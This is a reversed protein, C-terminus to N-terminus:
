SLGGHGGSSSMLDMASFNLDGFDTANGTSAITAYDMTNTKTNGNDKGGGRVFRTSSSLAASHMISITLDGFDTANGASAIT